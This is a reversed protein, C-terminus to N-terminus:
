KAKAAILPHTEYVNGGTFEVVPAASTATIDKELQVLIEDAGAPLKAYADKYTKLSSLYVEGVIDKGLKGTPGAKLVAVAAELAREKAKADESFTKIVDTKVKSLMRARISAVASEELAVLSDLKKAVADRYKHEEAMNLAQAQAQALDDLLNHVSSIDQEMGLVKKNAVISSQIDVLMSDDVKKLTTYVNDRYEDLSKAVM